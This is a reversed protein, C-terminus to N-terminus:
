LLFFKIDKIGNIILNFSTEAKGVTNFFKIIYKGQMLKNVKSFEFSYINDTKLFANFPEEKFNIEIESNNEQLHYIKFEPQPKGSVSLELNVYENENCEIISKVDKIIKPSSNVNLECISEVKSIKNTATIKYIGSDIFSCNIIKLVYLYTNTEQNWIPKEIILNKTNNLLSGNKFWQITSKPTSELISCELKLGNNENIETTNPLHKIIKPPTQISLVAHSNIEGVCNKLRCTYSGCDSLKLNLIKLRTEYLDNEEKSINELLDFSYHLDNEEPIIKDEFYWTVEAKPRSGFTCSFEINSNEEYVVETNSLCKIFYPMNNLDLILESYCFGVTNEALIKYFGKEKNTCNKITLSYNEQKNELKLKESTVIKEDNRYWTVNPKPNGYVNCDLKINSNENLTIKRIYKDELLVEDITPTATSSLVNLDKTFKPSSM